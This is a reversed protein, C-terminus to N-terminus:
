AITRNLATRGLILYALLGSVTLAIGIQMWPIPDLGGCHGFAGQRVLLRGVSPCPSYDRHLFAIFLCMSGVGTLGGAPAEPWKRNRRAAFTLAAVALPLILIGITMAGAAALALLAFGLTWAGLAKLGIHTGM